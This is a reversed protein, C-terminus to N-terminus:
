CCFAEMELTELRDLSSALRQARLIDMINLSTRVKVKALRFGCRTSPWRQPNHQLM